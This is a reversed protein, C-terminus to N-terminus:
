LAFAYVRCEADNTNAFVWAIHRIFSSCCFAALSKAHCTLLDKKRSIHSLFFEKCGDVFYVFVVVDVANKQETRKRFMQILCHDFICKSCFFVNITHCIKGHGAYEGAFFDTERWTCWLCAHLDQIMVSDIACAFFGNNDSSAKYNSFRCGHHQNLFVCGYRDAM